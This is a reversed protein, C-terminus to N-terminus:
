YSFSSDEKQYNEMVCALIRPFNLLTGYLTHLYKKEKTGSGCQMTLRKSIFDGYLSLHGVDTYFESGPLYVQVTCRLMEAPSLEKCPVFAIQFPLRLRTYVEIYVNMFEDFLKECAQLDETVGFVGINTSQATHLLDSNAHDLLNKANYQRGVAFFKMPLNKRPVVMRTLFASFSMPSLGILHFCNESDATRESELTIVRDPSTWDVFCGEVVASKFTDPCCLHTFNKEQLIKIVSDVLDLELTASEGCLYYGTPSISSFIASNTQQIIKHYSSAPFPFDRKDACHHVVELKNTTPCKPHILNPLQLLQPILENELKYLTKITEKRKERLQRGQAKLSEVESKWSDHVQENKNLYAKIKDAIANKEVELSDHLRTITLYSEFQEVLTLIDVSLGRLKLNKPLDTDTLISQFDLNPQVIFPQTNARDGPVHLATVRTAYRRASVSDSNLSVVWNWLTRSCLRAGLQLSETICTKSM